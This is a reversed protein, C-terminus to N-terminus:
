SLIFDLMPDAKKYAIGTGSGMGWPEDLASAIKTLTDPNMRHLEALDENTFAGASAAKAISAPMVIEEMGAAKEMDSQLDSVQLELAEIYSAAKNLWEISPHASEKEPSFTTLEKLNIGAAKVMAVAQEIDVGSQVLVSAAEKEMVHQAVNIRADSESFGAQKLHEVAVEMPDSLRISEAQERLAQALQSM